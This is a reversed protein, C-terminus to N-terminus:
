PLDGQDLVTAPIDGVPENNMFVRVDATGPMVGYIVFVGDTLAPDVGLVNSNGSVLTVSTGDETPEGGAMPVADVAVAIGAYIRIEDETLTTDLPPETRAELGVGPQQGCGAVLLGGVLLALLLTWPIRASSGQHRPRTM